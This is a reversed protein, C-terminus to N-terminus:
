APVIKESNIGFSPSIKLFARYVKSIPCFSIVEPKNRFIDKSWTLCVMGYIM